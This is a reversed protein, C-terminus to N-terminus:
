LSYKEQIKKLAFPPVMSSIDGHYSAIEKVIQSSIFSYKGCTMLFVTETQSALEKNASAIAFEYDFDTTSRLGRIIVSIDNDKCFDALLGEFSVIEINGIDQCCNNILEIREEISFLPKKESNKAIAIIIKDCLAKSRKIIDLHGYTLPDFSGPYIGIRM